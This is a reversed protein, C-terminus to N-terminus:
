QLFQTLNGGLSKLAGIGGSNASGQVTQMIAGTNTSQGLNGITNVLFEGWMARKKASLKSNSCQEVKATLTGFMKAEQETYDATSFDILNLIDYINSVEQRNKNSCNSNTPDDTCYHVTKAIPYGAWIMGDNGSGAYYDFCVISDEETAHAIRVSTEYGGSPTSCKKNLGGLSTYVENESMAGTKIWEKFTDNVFKLEASTPKCEETLTKEKKTIEQVNSVLSIVTPILSAGTEKVSNEKTAVPTAKKITIAHAPVFQTMCLLPAFLLLKKNM